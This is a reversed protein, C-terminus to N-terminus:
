TRFLRTYQTEHLISAIDALLCSGGLAEFPDGDELLAARAVTAAVAPRLAEFIIQADTQGLPVLRQAASVLNGAAAHLFATLSASFDIGHGAAMAAVVVPYTMEGAASVFFAPAAGSDLAMRRFAAGQALQELRREASTHTVEGLAAITELKERSQAKAARWAHTFLVTDNWGGGHDLWTEIWGQMSARDTVWRAEVAWELGSSHCFAGVPYSPSLWTMLRYLADDAMATDMTISAAMITGM